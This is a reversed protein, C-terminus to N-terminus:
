QKRLASKTWWLDCAKASLKTALGIGVLQSQAPQEIDGIDIDRGAVQVLLGAGDPGRVQGKVRFLGEPRARLAAQLATRDVPDPGTFSWKTYAPHPTQPLDIPGQPAILVQAINLDQTRTLVATTNLGSLTQRLAPSLDCKSVAIIDGCAIQGLVQPAILPDACLAQVQQGDVVTVIGAYDLDPEAQAVNAIRAPDAIGSAEIILHDPRPRRDLVDGVALFLDAGMTCCVCGNALEITDEKASVLLDADINIAGFDNVLVLIRLGHDGSLIRNILTTKGAGLYGGIVTMPLPTM